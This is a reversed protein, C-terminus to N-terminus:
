GSNAFTCIYLLDDRVGCPPLNGLASLDQALALGAFLVATTLTLQM